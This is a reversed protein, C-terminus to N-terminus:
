KSLNKLLSPYGPYVHHLILIQWIINQKWWQSQSFSAHITVIEMILLKICVWIPRWLKKVLMTKRVYKPNILDLHLQADLQILHNRKLLKTLACTKATCTARAKRMKFKKLFKSHLYISQFYELVHTFHFQM